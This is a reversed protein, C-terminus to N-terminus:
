PLVWGFWVALTKRVPPRAPVHHAHRACRAAHRAHIASVLGHGQQDKMAQELFLQDFIPTNM